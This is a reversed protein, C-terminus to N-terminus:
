RSIKIVKKIGHRSIPCIKGLDIRRGSSTIEDRNRIEVDKSRGAPDFVRIYRLKKGSIADDLPICHDWGLIM